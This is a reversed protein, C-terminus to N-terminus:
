SNQAWTRQRIKETPKLQIGCKRCYNHGWVRGLFSDCSPCRWYFFSFIFSALIISFCIFFLVWHSMGLVQHETHRLSFRTYFVGSIPLLLPIDILLMVRHKRAYEAIIQQKTKGSPSSSRLQKTKSSKRPKKSKLNM